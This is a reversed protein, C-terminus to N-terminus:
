FFLCVANERITTNILSLLLFTHQIIRYWVLWSLIGPIPELMLCLVPLVCWLRQWHQWHSQRNTYCFLSAHDEMESRQSFHKLYSWGPLIVTMVIFPPFSAYRYLPTLLRILVPGYSYQFFFNQYFLKLFIVSSQIAFLNTQFTCKM